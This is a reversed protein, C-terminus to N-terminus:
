PNLFGSITSFSHRNNKFIEIMSELNELMDALGMSPFLVLPSWLRGIIDNGFPLHLISSTASRPIRLLRGMKALRM